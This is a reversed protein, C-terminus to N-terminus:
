WGYEPQRTSNQRCIITSCWPATFPYQNIPPKGLFVETQNHYGCNHPGPAIWSSRPSGGRRQQWHQPTRDLQGQTLWICAVTWYLERAIRRYRSSGVAGWCKRWCTAACWRTRRCGTSGTPTFQGLSVMDYKQHPQKLSLV